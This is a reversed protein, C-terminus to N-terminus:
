LESGNHQEDNNNMPEWRGTEPREQSMVRGALAKQYQEKALLALLGGQDRLLRVVGARDRTEVLSNYQDVLVSYDIGPNYGFRSEWEIDREMAIVM